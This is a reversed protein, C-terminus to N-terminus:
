CWWCPISSWTSCRVETSIFKRLSIAVDFYSVVLLDLSLVVDTFLSWISANESSTTLIGPLLVFTLLRDAHAGSYFLSFTSCSNGFRLDSDLCYAVLLANYRNRYEM